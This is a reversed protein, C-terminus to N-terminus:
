AITGRDIFKQTKHVLLNIEGRLIYARDNWELYQDYQIESDNQVIAKLMSIKQGLEEWENFLDENAYVKMKKNETIYKALIEEAAILSCQFNTRM